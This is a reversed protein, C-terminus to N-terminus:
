KGVLIDGSRVEAGIRIIGAEDLDRLAEEGVNPIDRTIEEPGLKTDRAEVEYEENHISTFLEKKVMREIILIADEYNDGEWPMFAVLVNQGLAIEGQDTCPGDAIVDGLDVREGVEVIPRQNICTGQNSRQFKVLRHTREKGRDPKIVIADGTVSLVEGAERAVVVAGSDIAARYEMGTGVLPAETKLLPVAQRQMNSGMLARDSRGDPLFPVLGNDESVNKKANLDMYKDKDPPVVLDHHGLVA